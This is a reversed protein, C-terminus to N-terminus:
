FDDLEKIIEKIININKHYSSQSPGIIKLMGFLVDGEIHNSFNLISSITELSKTLEKALEIEKEIKDKTNEIERLIFSPFEEVKGSFTVEIFYRYGKNTPVRGASTHPQAIYGRDTLEQLENRITASSVDLDYREQLLKSSIPQAIDIYEKILSNLIKEQRQTIM